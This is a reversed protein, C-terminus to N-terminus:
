AAAPETVPALARKHPASEPMAMMALLGVTEVGTLYWALAMPTGTTKLLWTIFLQTSGGLIAVPLSYILAFGRSRLNRPLSEAITAYIAASPLTAILGLLLSVTIFAFPTRTSLIWLYCPVILVTFAAQPWILLPRRGLRDCLLGGIVASVAGIVNGALQAAMGDRAAMQLETQAFTATYNFIYTAITGSGIILFGCIAVRAPGPGAAAAAPPAPEAEHLTEPLVRRAWLAFPVIAVGMLLAIRWGFQTLQAETLVASLMLGVLSGVSAAILQAVAQLSVNIGRKASDGAEMMYVTSSGVEGGLAFGQVLRALIVIVPAAVGIAAHSPTLALTTIAVGMMVMSLLMIPKRGIRDALGGLVYAGIPRSIFGAGFTALSGMLSLYRDTSPFFTNGIQIAFFAFTIFDYFELAVGTTAALVARRRVAGNDAGQSM